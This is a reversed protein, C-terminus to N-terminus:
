APMPGWGQSQQTSSAGRHDGGNSSSSRSTADGSHQGSRADQVSADPIPGWGGVSASQQAGAAAGYMGQAVVNAAQGMASMGQRAADASQQGIDWATRSSGRGNFMGLTMFSFALDVMGRQVNDGARYTSSLIDGLQEEVAGAVENFAHTAPHEQQQQGQPTMISIMQQVGFLSMAWTYSMMSKTFERM